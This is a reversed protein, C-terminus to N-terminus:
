RRTGATKSARCTGPRSRGSGPSSSFPAPSTQTDARTAVRFPARDASECAHRAPGPVLGALVAVVSLISVAVAFSPPDASTVGFLQHAILQAAAFSSPVGVILGVALLALTQRMFMWLVDSRGAGLAMRVGIEGTRRIVIQAISGYLGVSALTLALVGFFAVFEAALRQSGFTSAIQERLSRVENMPLNRDV